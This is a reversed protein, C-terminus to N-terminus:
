QFFYEGIREHWMNLDDTNRNFGHFRTAFGGVMIYRVRNENLTKWFRLLEDDLM